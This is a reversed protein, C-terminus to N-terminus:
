NLVSCPSYKDVKSFDFKQHDLFFRFLWKVAPFSKLLYWISRLLNKGQSWVDEVPNQEPAHLAFPICTIQWKTCDRGANVSALFDKVNKSRHYTAGDWIFVIRKGIYIRQLYKMFDVTNEGNGASYERVIFEKTQYNLVGFYTQRNSQNLIPVKIRINSRGWM